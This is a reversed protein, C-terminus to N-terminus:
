LGAHATCDYSFSGAGTYFRAEHPEYTMFGLPSNGWSFLLIFHSTFSFRLVLLATFVFRMVLMNTVKFHVSQIVNELTDGVFGRDFAPMAAGLRIAHFIDASGAQFIIRGTHFATV